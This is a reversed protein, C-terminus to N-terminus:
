TGAKARYLTYKEQATKGSKDVATVTLAVAENAPASVNYTWNEGNLTANEASATNGDGVKVTVKDIGYSDTWTGSLAFTSSEKKYYYTGNEKESIGSTTVELTPAKMDVHFHINKAESTNGAKDVSKVYLYWHGENLTGEAPTETGEALNRSITWAGDDIAQEKWSNEASPGNTSEISDDNSRVFAYILKSIGVGAVGDKTDSANGRFTYSDGYLARDGTIGNAPATIEVTPDVTDVTVTIVDSEKTKGAM